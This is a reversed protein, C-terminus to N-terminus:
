APRRASPDRAGDVAALLRRARVGAAADGHRRQILDAHRRRHDRRVGQRRRLLDIHRRRDPARDPVDLPDQRDQRRLRAPRRRRRRRIGLGSATTTVGGREPQPTKDKWVSAQRHRPQGRQALRLGALGPPTSGFNGNALGLFVDGLTFKDKKQLETDAGGPSARVGDRRGRQLRLQTSRTSPPPRITSAASRRRPLRDGAQGAHSGPHETHDLLKVQQYIPRGTQADYAFWLGEM